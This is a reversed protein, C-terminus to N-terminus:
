TNARTKARVLRFLPLNKNGGAVKDLLRVFTPRAERTARAYINMTSSVDAHGLLKQVDKQAAGNSLLIAQSHTAPNALIFARDM